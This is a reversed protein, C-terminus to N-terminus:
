KKSNLEEKVMAEVVPKLIERTVAQLMEPSMKALVKAVLDDQSEHKAAAEKVEETVTKAVAETAAVPAPEAVFAPAQAAEVQDVADEPKAEEKGVEEQAQPEADVPELDKPEAIPENTEDSLLSEASYADSVQESSENEIEPAAEAQHEVDAPAPAVAADWTSALQNAKEAVTDWPSPPASYWASSAPSSPTAPAAAETHAEVVPAAAVEAVQEAPKEESAIGIAKAWADSASPVPSVSAAIEPAIAAHVETATGNSRSVFEAAETLPNKEKSPQWGGHTSQVPTASAIATDRWDEVPRTPATSEFAEDAADRRWTEKPEDITEEPDEEEVSQWSREPATGTVVPPLDALDNEEKAAPSELMSGFALPQSGADIRVPVPGTHVEDVFSENELVPVFAQPALAAPISAITPISPVGKPALDSTKLAAPQSAKEAANSAGMSVGARALASKVMSILPDPPVFPKKLVGDAGVRQAEQEDLPDFAGVLLIVPIHKLSSDEKVYKCVEYGNRVPMFVDALVLDPKIDSIKRVAAEGNGVAVVDIGQDKLALGVM